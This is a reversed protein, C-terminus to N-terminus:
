SPPTRTKSSNRPTAYIRCCRGSILANNAARSLQCIAVLPIPLEPALRKLGTSFSGILEVRNQYGADESSLLQLYDVVILGLPEKAHM